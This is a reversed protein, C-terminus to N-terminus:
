RLTVISPRPTGGGGAGVGLRAKEVGNEVAQEGHRAVAADIKHTHEGFKRGRIVLAPQNDLGFLVGCLRRRESIGPKTKGLQTGGRRARAERPLLSSPKRQLEGAREGAIGSRM